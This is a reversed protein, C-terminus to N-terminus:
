LLFQHICVTKKGMLVVGGDPTAVGDYYIYKRKPYIGTGITATDSYLYTSFLTDHNSNFKTLAVYAAVTDITLVTFYEGNNGKVFNHYWFYRILNGLSDTEHVQLITDLMNGQGDIRNIYETGWNSLPMMNRGSILYNASDLDMIDWGLSYDSFAYYTKHFYVQQAQTSAFFSFLLIVLILFNRM